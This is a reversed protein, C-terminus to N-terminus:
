GGREAKAASVQEEVVKLLREAEGAKLGEISVIEEEGKLQIKLGRRGRSVKVQRVASWRIEEARESRSLLTSSQVRKILRRNTAVYLVTSTSSSFYLAMLLLLAMLGWGMPGSLLMAALLLIPLSFLFLTSGSWQRSAMALVSEWGRFRLRRRLGELFEEEARRRYLEELRRRVLLRRAAARDEERLEKLEEEVEEEVRAREEASVYRAVGRELSTRASALLLLWMGSAALGMLIFPLALALPLPLQLLSFYANLLGLLFTLGAASLLTLGALKFSRPTAASLRDRLGLKKL